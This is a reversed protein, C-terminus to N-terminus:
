QIIAVKGHVKNGQSDKILYIYIGSAVQDGSNDTLDWTATGSSGDLEKVKHGSVTFIKVDSGSTMQDFTIPHGAHKDKRWPNPYVRVDAQNTSAVTTPPSSPPPTVPPPPITYVSGYELAGISPPNKWPNGDYDTPLGPIAVGAGIAPSNNSITFNFNDLMSESTWTQSPENVLLPDLCINGAGGTPCDDNRMGYEVNHSSVVNISSNEIYFLGPVVGPGYINTPDVYGLFINNTVNVTSPCVFPLGTSPDNGAPCAIDFVTPQSTVWTNNAILWTSGAPIDSAVVNGAARCFGSLYMNYTSPAGPMPQSMRMCNGVTLNNTFTTNNPSTYGGWKWSQGMNGIAVSNTISLNSVWTHPGIFADKTNYNDQCDNCSFSDLTTNQGSWSDGFGQSNTDYCVMAPFPHSIPYEEQCGNGIMYVHNANISSGPADPTSHGDDFNWGAFANFGVFVRTMSIPGGIPGYMGCSNFGHISIDQFSVNATTSSTLIGSNGYDDVPTSTNCGRPYRPYGISDCAGNHTTIELCQVDVYSTNTLNLAYGLSFGAFLQTLNKTYTEPNVAGGPNCAAYNEGLIRTHQSPTGAPIPPNYCTYSANGYGCWSNPPNGSTPNDYGLRCDPDSPNEQSGLAHCGRVIVTDGGSIVWANPVGSNDAWLYRFDNFACHQNTGSGPYAVDALGDCQGTTVNSSYRTGGDTRIYWTNYAFAAPAIILSLFTLFLIKKM